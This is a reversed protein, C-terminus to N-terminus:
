IKSLLNTIPEENWSQYEHIAESFLHLYYQLEFGNDMLAFEYEKKYKEIFEPSLLYYCFSEEHYDEMTATM